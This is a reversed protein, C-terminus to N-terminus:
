VVGIACPPRGDDQGPGTPLGDLFTFDREACAPRFVRMVRAAGRVIRLEGGRAVARDQIRDLLRLGGGDLFTVARLDVVLDLPQGAVLRDTRPTLTLSAQIDIEGRLEIVITVITNETDTRMIHERMVFGSEDVSM